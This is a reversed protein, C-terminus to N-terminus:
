VYEELFSYEEMHERIYEQTFGAYPADAKIMSVIKNKVYERKSYRYEALNTYLTDMVMQLERVRADCAAVRIGTNRKEFCEEILDATNIASAKENKPKIYVKGDVFYHGIEQKPDTKCCDIINGSYRKQNKIGNCHRCSWFLNNWDFKRDIYKGNEHPLLHEVEPDTLYKMECLYCKERFDHRLLIVVDDLNYNGCKKAKEIELSAPPVATRDVKVM